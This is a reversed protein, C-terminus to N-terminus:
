KKGGKLVEDHLPKHATGNDHPKRCVPCLSDVAILRDFQEHTLPVLSDKLAGQEYGFKEEPLAVKGYAHGAKSTRVWVVANRTTDVWLTGERSKWDISSASKVPELGKLLEIYKSALTKPLEESFSGEVVGPAIETVVWFPQLDNWWDTMKPDAKHKKLLTLLFARQKDTSNSM